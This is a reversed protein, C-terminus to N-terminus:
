RNQLGVMAVDIINIVYQELGAALEEPTVARLSTEEPSRATLQAM